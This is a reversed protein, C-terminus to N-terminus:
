SPPARNVIQSPSEVNSLIVEDIAPHEEMQRRDEQTLPGIKELLGAPLGIKGVDHVLGCLHSLKKEQSSLGM